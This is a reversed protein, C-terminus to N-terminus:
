QQPWKFESDAPAPTEAGPWGKAASLNGTLKRRIGPVRSPEEAPQQQQQQQQPAASSPATAASAQPRGVAATGSSKRTKRAGVLPVKPFKPPSPTAVKPVAQASQAQWRQQQQQPQGQSLPAAPRQQQQQQEPLEPTPVRLNRPPPMPVQAQPITYGSQQGYYGQPGGYGQQAAYRPSTPAGSAVAAYSPPPAGAQQQQTGGRRDGSVVKEPPVLVASVVPVGGSSPQQQQQLYQERDAPRGPVWSAASTQYSPGQSPPSPTWQEQQQQAPPPYAPAAAAPSQDEEDDSGTSAEGRPPQQRQARARLEEQLQSLQAKQEEIAQRQENLTNQQKEIEAQQHRRLEAMQVNAALDKDEGDGRALVRALVASDDSAESDSSSEKAKGKSAASKKKSPEPSSKSSGKRSDKGSGKTDGGGAAKRAQRQFAKAKEEQEKAKQQAEAQQKEAAEAAMRGENASALALTRPSLDAGKGWAKEYEKKTKAYEDELEKAAAARDAIIKDEAEKIGKRRDEAEKMEDNNAEQKKRLDEKREKLMDVLSQQYSLLTSQMEHFLDEYRGQQDGLPATRPPGAALSPESGLNRGKRAECFECVDDAGHRCFPNKPRKAKEVREQEKVQFEAQQVAQTTRGLQDSLLARLDKVTSELTSYRQEMEQMRLRKEMEQASEPGKTRALEMKLEKVQRRLLKISETDRPDRQVATPATAPIAQGGAASDPHGGPPTSFPQNGISLEPQSGGATVASPSVANTSMKNRRSRGSRGSERVPSPGFDGGGYPMDHSGGEESTPTPSEPVAPIRGPTLGTQVMERMQNRMHELLSAAENTM